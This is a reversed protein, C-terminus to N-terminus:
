HCILVFASRTQGLCAGKRIYPSAVLIIMLYAVVAALGLRMQWEGPFFAIISTLVLKHAMDTMEFFYHRPVYAEFLFGLQVRVGLEDLRRRYRRLLSFFLAPVGIPYLLTQPLCLRSGILRM